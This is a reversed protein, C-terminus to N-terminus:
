LYPPTVSRLGLIAKPHASLAMVGCCYGKAAWKEEWDIGSGSVRMPRPTSTGYCAGEREEPSFGGDEVQTPTNRRSM